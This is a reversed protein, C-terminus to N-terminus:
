EISANCDITTTLTNHAIRLSIAERQGQNRPLFRSIEDKSFRPQAKPFRTPSSRGSRRTTRIRGHSTKDIGIIIGRL